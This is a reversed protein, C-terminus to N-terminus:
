RAIAAVARRPFGREPSSRTSTAARTAVNRLAAFARDLREAAARSVPALPLRVEASWGHAIALLHKIAAPETELALSEMVPALLRQIAHAEREDRRRCAAVLSACLDPAVNAISSVWGIGGAGSFALAATDRGCLQIFRNGFLRAIDSAREADGAMEIVGAISPIAALRTMTELKVDIAARAPDNLILLASDVVRAVAEFHRFVGDQTPKNYYPTTIAIADAGCASAAKALEVAHDTGNAIVAGVIPARKRGTEVATRLLREREAQTLTSAEGTQGGVIIGDAGASIQWEVFAAFKEEDIGNRTFPTAAMTVLGRLRAIIPDM